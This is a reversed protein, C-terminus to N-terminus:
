NTDFAVRRTETFKTSFLPSFFLIDGGGGGGGRGRPFNNEVKQTSFQSLLVVKLSNHSFLSFSLSLSFHTSLFLPTTWLQANSVPFFITFAYIKKKKQSLTFFIWKQKDISKKKNINLFQEICNIDTFNILTVISFLINILMSAISSAVREVM